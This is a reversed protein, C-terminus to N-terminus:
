DNSRDRDTLTGETQVDYFPTDHVGEELEIKHRREPILGAPRFLMMLVIIIGYIGFQYKTPDFDLGADQIKSGITSLGSFNLYALIMGGVTVGWISGMGGLIVMCLLFVSINFYFDAPFAGSKFSAYYAGAVGGFFAGLAYSWTKTRMLPVGMAAAATEDERIAIWARGLRSDRLRVSCFITFLLLLFAILYYWRERNDSTQFNEPFFGISSLVPFGVADIPAIGFTGNTLNFGGFSDGNRVVQPIIEGFGLTVIALYDGRLRLTPLGILIGALMTLLGAFILVVWMTVHIGVQDNDVSSGFHFTVQEFHQSALWGATYAGVAYFAVYGLDLLGCYGVVINLGVAMMTFAIMVVLTGTTPMFDGIVPLNSLGDEIFPYVVGLAIVAPVLWANRNGRLEKAREAIGSM